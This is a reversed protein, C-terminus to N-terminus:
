GRLAVIQRASVTTPRFQYRRHLYRRNCIDDIYDVYTAMKVDPRWEQNILGADLKVRELLRTCTVVELASYLQRIAIIIVLSMLFVCGAQLMGFASPREHESLRPM